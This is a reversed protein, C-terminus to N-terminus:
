RVHTKQEFGRRDCCLGGDELHGRWPSPTTGAVPSNRQPKELEWPMTAAAQLRCRASPSFPAPTLRSSLAWEAKGTGASLSCSALSMGPGPNDPTETLALIEGQVSIDGTAFTGTQMKLYLNGAATGAAWSGCALDVGTVIATASGQKITDGVKIEKAGTTFPLILFYGGVGFVTNVDAM